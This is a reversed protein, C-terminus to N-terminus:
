SRSSMKKVKELLVDMDFPKTIFDDAGSERAVKETDNKASVMIIPISKTKEKAKLHKAIEGGDQGSMWIDLLVVDPMEDEIKKLIMKGDDITIVKYDEEELIIKIVELIGLDDDVVIIKKKM